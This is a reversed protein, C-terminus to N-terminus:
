EHERLRYPIDPHRRTHPGVSRLAGERGQAAAANCRVAFELRQSERAPGRLSHCIAEKYQSSRCEQKSGGALSRRSREPPEAPLSDTSKRTLLRSSCSRWTSSDVAAEFT